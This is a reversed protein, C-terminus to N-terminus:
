QESRVETSPQRQFLLEKECLDALEETALLIQKVCREAEALTLLIDPLTDETLQQPVLSVLHRHRAYLKATRAIIDQVLAFDHDAGRQWNNLIRDKM